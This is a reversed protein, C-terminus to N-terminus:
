QVAQKRCEANKLSFSIRSRAGGTWDQFIVVHEYEVISISLAGFFITGRGKEKGRVSLPILDSILQDAATEGPAGSGFPPLQIACVRGNTSYDVIMEVSDSRTGVRFTERALPSGFRAHLDNAFRAGDIQAFASAALGLLAALLKFRLKTKMFTSRILVVRQGLAHLPVELL